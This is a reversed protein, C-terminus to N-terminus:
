CFSAAGVTMNTRAKAASVAATGNAAMSAAMAAGVEKQHLTGQKIKKTKSIGQSVAYLATDFLCM